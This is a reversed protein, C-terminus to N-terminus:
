LLINRKLKKNDGWLCGSHLLPAMFLSYYYYPFLLIVISNLSRGCKRGDKDEGGKKLGWWSCKNLASFSEMIFLNAREM